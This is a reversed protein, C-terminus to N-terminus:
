LSNSKNPKKGNTKGNTEEKNEDVIVLEGESSLGLKSSARDKFEDLAVEKFTRSVITTDEIQVKLPLGELSINQGVISDGYEDTIRPFGMSSRWENITIAKSAIGEKIIQLKLEIDDPIINEFEFRINDSDRYLPLLKTNIISEIHQLLPLRVQKAYIHEAAIVTARNSNEIIGMIEPPVGFHQITTDRYFKRTELLEMDKHNTDVSVINAAWNLFVPKHANNVGQFKRYWDAELRTIDTESMEEGKEATIFVDPRASNIYFYKIYKQVYEDTEIEDKIAEAKGRGNFYPSTLDLDMDVIVQAKPYTLTEDGWKFEYTTSNMDGSSKQLKTFIKLNSPIGDVYDFAIYVIGTMLRYATWLAFFQPVSHERISKELPHQLVLSKSNRRNTATLKFETAGNDESIKHIVSMRPNEHYLELWSKQGVMGGFLGSDMLTGTVSKEKTPNFLSKIAVSVDNFNM